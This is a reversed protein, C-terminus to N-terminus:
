PIGHRAVMKDKVHSDGYWSFVTKINLRPGTHLQNSNRQTAQLGLEDMQSLDPAAELVLHNEERYEAVDEDTELWEGPHTGLHFDRQLLIASM